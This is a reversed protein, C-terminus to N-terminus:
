TSFRVEREPEFRAAAELLGVHGEQILDNVPLGYNRFRVAIAIVLRMHARILQHLAAEDQNERWRRALGREEEHELFPASAAASVIQRGVGTLRMM